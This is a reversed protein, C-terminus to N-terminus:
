PKLPYKLIFINQLKEPNKIGIKTQDINNLQSNAVVFLENNAIAATTPINFYKNKQDIIETKLIQNNDPSLYYRVIKMEELSDVGNQVGIVSNNYYVIGDLGGSPILTSDISLMKTTGTQIDVKCLGPWSAIFLHKKDPALAIGNPYQLLAGKAFKQPRDQSLDWKWVCHGYTDTFYVTNDDVIVLDNFFAKVTDEPLAFKRLLEGTQTDFAFIGTRFRKGMINGSCAWLITGAKNVQMGVGGMFGYEKEDIFDKIETGRVQVIKNRFISSVYFTKHVADYAIGEPILDNQKIEFAVNQSKAVIVLLLLTVLLTVTKM